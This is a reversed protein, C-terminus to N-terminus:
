PLTGGSFKRAYEPDRRCRDHHHAEARRESIARESAYFDLDALVWKFLGIAEEDRVAEVVIRLVTAVDALQAADSPERTLLQAIAGAFATITSASM